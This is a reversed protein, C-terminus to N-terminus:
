RCSSSTSRVSRPRNTPPTCRRFASTATAQSEILLGRERMAALHAGRAVFSVDYGAHALRGGFFGGVGGIGDNRNEDPCHYGAKTLPSSPSIIRKATRAAAAAASDSNASATEAWDQGALRNVEDNRERRSARDIRQRADEARPQLVRQALLEDDLVLGARRTRDARGEDRLAGGVAVRIRHHEIGM